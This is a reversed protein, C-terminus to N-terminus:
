NDPSRENASNPEDRWAQVREECLHTNKVRRKIDAKIGEKGKKKENKFLHGDQGVKKQKGVRAKEKKKNKRLHRANAVM